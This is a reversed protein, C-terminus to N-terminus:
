RITELPSQNAQNHDDSLMEVCGFGLGIKDGLGTNYILEHLKPHVQIRFKYMYGIVKAEEQTFRKIYIGKRKPASLLQFSFDSPYPFTHGYFHAYKDLLDTLLMECYHPNSPAIYEVSKNPRVSSVVIPSLSLYDISHSFSDKSVNQISDVLFEVKSHKDGILISQNLLASCLFQETGSEPLFSIWFQIKHTMIRLRDNDVKIKPIYFNSLSFLKYKFNSEESLHNNNLWDLYLSHNETLKRYICSSLEYQYSVPLIDGFSNRVLLVIKFRMYQCIHCLILFVVNEIKIIM